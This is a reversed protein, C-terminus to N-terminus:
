GDSIENDEEAALEEPTCIVPPEFGADLCVAEIRGRMAANAIHAFNWTVLYELGHVAALAVHFADRPESQPIARAALLGAALRRVAEDIDLTELTKIVDLREQAATSDGAGCEDIVLESIFVQYKSCFEPWWRRAFQQRAAILPNPHLRGALHGVVSTEVYVKDM